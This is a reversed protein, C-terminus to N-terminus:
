PLVHQLFLKIFEVGEVTRIKKKFDDARDTYEFSVHTSSVEKIRAVHIQLLKAACYLHVLSYDLFKCVVAPSLLVDM